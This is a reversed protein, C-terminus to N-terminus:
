FHTNNAFSKQIAANKICLMKNDFNIINLVKFSIKLKKLTEKYINKKQM